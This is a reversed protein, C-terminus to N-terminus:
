EGVKNSPMEARLQISGKQALTTVSVPDRPAPPGTWDIKEPEASAPKSVHLSRLSAAPRFAVVLFINYTLGFGTTSFRACVM